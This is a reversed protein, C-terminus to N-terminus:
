RRRLRDALGEYITGRHGVADIRLVRATRDLSYVIRFRRVRYRRVGSLEARLEIGLTPDAALAKLANRISARIEPHLDRIGAALPSIAVKYRRM